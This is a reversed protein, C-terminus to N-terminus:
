SKTADNKPKRNITKATKVAFRVSVTGDGNRTAKEFPEISVGLKTGIKTSLTKAGARLKASLDKYVDANDPIPVQAGSGYVTGSANAPVRGEWSKELWAITPNPGSATRGQRQPASAATPTVATFDFPQSAPKAPAAPATKKAPTTAM